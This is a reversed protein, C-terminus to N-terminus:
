HKPQDPEVMQEIRHLTDQFQESHRGGLAVAATAHRLAAPLDGQEMLVQALNNHAPAYDHNVDLANEYYQQAYQWEGSQYYANGLAMLSLLSRPWRRVAARYANKALELKGNREFFSAAKIFSVPEATAPISGPPTIVLAWKHARQWTREFTDLSVEHQEITGSHLMIRNDAPDIGTVVAYHWRPLWDLGLNQFVLVPNGANIENMLSHLDPQMVYPIREYYRAAAVMEAQFSGKRQPVYVLPVLQQPTVPQGSWALVMALAAPGCQYEQQPFFPVNDIISPSIGDLAGSQRLQDIELTTSCASLLVASALGLLAVKCFRTLKAGYM